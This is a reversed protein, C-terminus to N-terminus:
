LASELYKESFLTDADLSVILEDENFRSNIADFLEKRAWGVGCRKGQWQCNLITIDFGFSDKKSELWQLTDLNDEYMAREHETGNEAWSAPNNVCIYVSFGRFTQKQLLDFLIPMNQREALVPIAISIHSYRM